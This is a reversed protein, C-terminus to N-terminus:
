FGLLSDGHIFTLVCCRTKRCIQLKNRMKYTPIMSKYSIREWYKRSLEPFQTNETYLRIKIEVRQILTTFHNFNITIWGIWSMKFPNTIWNNLLANFIFWGMNDMMFYQLLNVLIFILAHAGLRRELTCTTGKLQLM